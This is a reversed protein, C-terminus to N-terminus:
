GGPDYKRLQRSYKLLADIMHTLRLASQRIVKVHDREEPETSHTLRKELISSFGEIERLPGKLDHAVSYTFAELKKTKRVM